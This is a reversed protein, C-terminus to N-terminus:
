WGCDYGRESFVQEPVVSRERAEQFVEDVFQGQKTGGGTDRAVEDLQCRLIHKDLDNAGSDQTVSPTAAGATTTEQGATMENGATTEEKPTTEQGTATCGIATLMVVVVLLLAVVRLM